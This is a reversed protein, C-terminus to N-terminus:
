RSRLLVGSDILIAAQGRTLKEIGATLRFKRFLIKQKDSIPLQRWYADLDQFIFLGRHTKAFEEASGFGYEFDLGEAITTINNEDTFVVSWKGNGMPQVSLERNGIGKMFYRHDEHQWSFSQGLPDFSVLATKLRPNLQAPIEGIIPKNRREKSSQLDADLFLSAVSCIKHDRDGFNLIICDKKNIWPAPRLGRGCCQQFKLRSKTPSMIICSTEPLDVGETLLQANCLVMLDGTRYQELFAKRQAMEMEGCVLEAKIGHAKFCDAIHQSNKISVGFCITKRGEAKKQWSDVIAEIMDDSDMIDALQAQKFDGDVTEIHSFDLDNAVMFGLPPCLYGQKILENIDLEYAVADFVEALGKKSDNRFPTATFGCLLKKTNHGFGLANLVKRTGDSAARHCEDSVCLEFGQDMLLKLNSSIVASQISSVVIQKDFEKHDQCVLGVPLGTIMEIKSKSQELLENTHALVITKCNLDRILFGFVVTKGSGTPLSILLRRKGQNACQKIADICDIQYPRLQLGHGGTVANSCGGSSISVM